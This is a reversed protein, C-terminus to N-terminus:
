KLNYQGHEEMTQFELVVAETPLIHLSCQRFLAGSFRKIVKLINHDFEVVSPSYFPFLENRKPVAGMFYSIYNNTWTPGCDFSVKRLESSYTKLM